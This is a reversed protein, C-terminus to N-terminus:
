QPYVHIYDIFSLTYFTAFLPSNLYLLIYIYIYIYNYFYNQDFHTLTQTKESSFCDKSDKFFSSLTKLNTYLVGDM